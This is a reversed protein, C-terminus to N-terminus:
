EGPEVGMARLKAALREARQQVADREAALRDREHALRDRDQEARERAAALESYSLFRRGDPGYIHLEEGSTDFRTKLRPSTWGNLDGIESLREDDRLWGDVENRDPDYLYYEGVGYKEYFKLKRYMEGFRYNHALIEFVVQPAIANEEWQRYSSRDGKPRGFAIMASPAQCITPKGEVPYWLLSGAVFVDPENRFIWDLNERIRVIWRFQLANDAIPKGDSDPYIIDSRSLGQVSVSMPSLGGRIAAAM